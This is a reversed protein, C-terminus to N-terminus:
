PCLLPINLDEEYGSTIVALDLLFLVHFLRVFHEIEMLPAYIPELSGGGLFRV